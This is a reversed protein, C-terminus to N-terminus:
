IHRWRLRRVIESIISPDVGFEAALERQTIGGAAYRERISRVGDETLKANHAREGKASRDKMIASHITGRSRREPHRRMGNRDGTASRGKSRMDASNDAPTGAFVHSPRVCAIDGGDCYHLIWPRDPPPEHGTTLIYAVVHARRTRGRFRLQGYGHNDRCATWIWCPGLEPRLIPGNQDVRSWFREAVAASYQLQMPSGGNRTGRRRSNSAARLSRQANLSEPIQVGFGPRGSASIGISFFDSLM